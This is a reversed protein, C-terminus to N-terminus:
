NVSPPLHRTFMALMMRHFNTIDFELETGDAETTWDYLEAIDHYDQADAALFLRQVIPEAPAAFFSQTLELNDVTHNFYVYYFKNEVLTMNLNAFEGYNSISMFLTRHVGTDLFERENFQM